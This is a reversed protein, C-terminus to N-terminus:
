ALATAVKELIHVAEEAEARTINLPPLLRIIKQGSPIVMLGAEHCRNVLQIAPTKESEKFKPRDASFEVGLIFGVGRVNTIVHPLKALLKELALRLWEGTERANQDLHDREVVEIIKSAVACGLPTGGFTTGHTGAGLLDAYKDRVWFAGIPFGGGLSKATSLADPTFNMGERLRQYSCYRGTRFNGAQVEDMMLLMKKRDCLERLGLLYETTAPTIGGEGQIGEILVAVTAPSIAEEVAKLDNFPVHRFGPVVPGFGQRVKEQGTAAIGALTRGHFSNLATIIEFRGEEHGFKRAIKYLGENAEAGSNCFFIKGPGILKVLKQALRGQPENYYLNSVHVLKRSQEVLADTIEENAHGLSCVAIGAGFDLYSKGSADWLRTGKGHTFAVEFRAYSPVVNHKFLEIIQQTDNRVIAPRQPIIEKM